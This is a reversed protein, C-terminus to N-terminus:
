LLGVQFVLNDESLPEEATGILTYEFHDNGDPNRLQLTGEFTGAFTGIFTMDLMTPSSTRKPVLLTKPGSFGKGTCSIVFIFIYTHVYPYVFTSQPSFVRM